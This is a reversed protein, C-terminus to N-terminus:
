GGVRDLDLRHPEEYEHIVMSISGDGVLPAPCSAAGRRNLRFKRDERRDRDPNEPITSDSVSFTGVARFSVRQDATSM